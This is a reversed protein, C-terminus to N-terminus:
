QLPFTLYVYGCVALAAVGAAAALTWLLSRLRVALAFSAMTVGAQAALMGYFFFKSRTRHRDSAWGSKRAEVEYLGAAAQNDRAERDYRRANFRLQAATFDNTLEGASTRVAAATERLPAAASRLEGAPGAPMDDLEVLAAQTSRYFVRAVTVEEDLLKGLKGIAQNAPQLADDFARARDEADHIAQHLLTVPIAAVTAETEQETKRAAIEALATKILPDDLAPPAGEAAPPAPLQSSNLFAFAQQVDPEAVLQGLRAQVDEAAKLKEATVRRLHDVAKQLPAAAAGLEKGAAQVRDQLQHAERDARRFQRVLRGAADQLYAADVEGPQAMANLLKATLENTTGRLRKAQFFAWQDGVKSQNQAALARHYQAQTMESSSLGALLTSVVTLIIPMTTLLRELTSKSTDAPDASVPLKKNLM